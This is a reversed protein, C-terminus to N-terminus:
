LWIEPQSVSLDTQEMSRKWFGREKRVIKNQGAKGVKRAYVSFDESSFYIVRGADGGLDSAILPIGDTKLFELVFRSNVEGVCTFNDRAKFDLMSAGGFAKARLDERRAGLRMMANIVLEMAHIGYKGADTLSLRIDRAYRRNALLFHNMGVIKRSQDWLCAAVCSGLLTSIVVSEDSAFYDGPSLVIHKTPFTTGM